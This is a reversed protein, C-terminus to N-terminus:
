NQRLRFFRAPENTLIPFPSSAGTVLSWPGTVQTASELTANKTAWNLQWRTSAFALDLVLGASVFQLSAPTSIVAGCDNSIQVDYAAVDGPPTPFRITLTGEQAGSIRAGDTLNAGNKRWQYHLPLKGRATVSLQATQNIFTNVAEPQKLIKVMDADAWEWTQGSRYSNDAGGFVVLADRATDYVMREDQEPHFGGNRSLLDWSAGDYSWTEVPLGFYNNGNNIVVLHRGPHYAISEGQMKLPAGNIAGPIAGPYFKPSQRVWNTGGWEWVPASQDAELPIVGSTILVRKNRFSDYAMAGAGGSVPPWNDAVQNWVGLQGDFEWTDYLATQDVGPPDARFAGKLGFGGWLVTRKAQSDFAMAAFQRGSPGNPTLLTWTSGDWAWTGARFWHLPDFVGLQAGINGGILLIKGISSDYAMSAGFRALPGNTSRLFWTNGNWEWTDGYLRSTDDGGFLVTVGRRSDYAMAHASRPAPGNTSILMWPKSVTLQAAHSTNTGCPGAVVVSYFGNDAIFTDHITLTSVTFPAGNSTVESFHGDAVIPRGDKLWQFSQPSDGNVTASFTVVSCAEVTQNTPDFGVFEPRVNSLEWTDDYRTDGSVGGFLVTVQRKSDYVMAHRARPPPTPIDVKRTIYRSSTPDYRLEEHNNGVDVHPQTNIQVGGFVVTADRFSDYSMAFQQRATISGVVKVFPDTGSNAVVQYVLENEFENFHDTASIYFYFTGGTLLVNGRLSDFAMAHRAFTRHLAVFSPEGIPVNLDGLIFWNTGDWQWLDKVRTESPVGISTDTGVAGGSVFALGRLSDFAMAHGARASYGPPSQYLDKKREWSGLLAGQAPHYVWTDNFYGKENVGGFLAVQKRVTDYVLTHGSRPDPQAGIFGRKQWHVGDYEWTDNYYTITSSGADSYEGGFFVTVGRDSDYAMAPSIRKGPTGVDTRQVWTICERGLAESGLALGFILILKLM